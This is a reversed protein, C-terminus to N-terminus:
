WAVINEGSGNKDISEDFGNGGHLEARDAYRSVEMCDYERQEEETGVCSEESGRNDRRM